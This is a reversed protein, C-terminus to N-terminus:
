KLNNLFQNNWGHILPAFGDKQDFGYDHGDISKGEAQFSWMMYGSAGQKFYNQMDMGFLTKRDSGHFKKYGAEGVYLPKGLDKAIQLDKKNNDMWLDRVTLPQYIRTNFHDLVFDDAKRSLYNFVQDLKGFRHSWDKNGQNRMLLDLRELANADYSYDHISVADLTPLQYLKKFNDTGLRSIQSGFKDGVGGITGISVLHNPDLQKIRTSVDRSFALLPDFAETEPENVLEWMMVEPRDKCATVLKEVYPLYDKKYGGRYFADGQKMEPTFSGNNALVPIFKVHYKQGADLIAKLQEPTTKNAWFRVVTFGEAAADAIMKETVEPKEWTLSYMNCGVYRFDKGDISFKGGRNKVFGTSFDDPAGFSVTTAAHGAPLQQLRLRDTPLQPLALLNAPPRLGGAPVGTPAQLSSSARNPTLTGLPQLM